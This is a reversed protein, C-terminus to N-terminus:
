VEGLQSDSLASGVREVSAVKGKVARGQEGALMTGMKWRLRTKPRKLIWEGARGLTLILAKSVLGTPQVIGSLSCAM